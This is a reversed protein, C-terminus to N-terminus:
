FSRILNNRNEWAKKCFRFHLMIAKAGSPLIYPLAKYFYIWPNLFKNNKTKVLYEAGDIGAMYIREQTELTKYGFCSIYKILFFCDGWDFSFDEYISILNERIFIGYIMSSCPSEIFRQVQESDKQGNLIPLDDVNLIKSPTKVCYSSFFAAHNSIQSLSFEIFDFTWYDDDAAWMFYDGSSNDLVFKFNFAAGMNENQKFFKIRNDYKLFPEVISEILNGETANDSIIIEINQYTQKTILDLTRALGIPRNYTPIGISVLPNATM